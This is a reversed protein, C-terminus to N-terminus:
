RSASRPARLARLLGIARLRLSEDAIDLLPAIDDPRLVSALADIREELVAIAYAPDHAAVTRFAAAFDRPGAAQLAAMAVAKQSSRALVGVVEPAELAPKHKALSQRLVPSSNAQLVAAWVSADAGKAHALRELQFAGESYNLLERLDAATLTPLVLHCTLIGRADARPTGSWCYEAKGGNNKLAALLADIHRRSLTGGTYLHRYILTTGKLRGQEALDGNHLDRVADDLLAERQEAPERSATARRTPRPSTTSRSGSRGGTRRLQSKIQSLTGYSVRM